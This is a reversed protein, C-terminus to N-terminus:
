CAKSCEVLLIRALRMIQSWSKYTKIDLRVGVGVFIGSEKVDLGEKGVHV